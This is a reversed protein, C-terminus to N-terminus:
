SDKCKAETGRCEDSIHQLQHGAVRCGVEQSHALGVVCRKIDGTLLVGVDHGIDAGSGVKGGDKLAPPSFLIFTRPSFFFLIGHKAFSDHIM